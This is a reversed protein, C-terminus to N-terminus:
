KGKMMMGFMKNFNEMSGQGMTPLINASLQTVPTINRGVFDMTPYSSFVIIDELHMFPYAIRITSTPQPTTAHAVNMALSPPLISNACKKYDIEVSQGDITTVFARKYPFYNLRNHVQPSRPNALQIFEDSSRGGDDTAFFESVIYTNCVIYSRWIQTEEPTGGALEDLGSLYDGVEGTSNYQLTTRMGDIIYNDQDTPKKSQWGVITKWNSYTSPTSTISTGSFPVVDQELMSTDTWGSPDSTTVQELAIVPSGLKDKYTEWYDLELTFLVTFWDAGGESAPKPYNLIRKAKVFYWKKGDGTNSYNIGIYNYKMGDSGSNCTIEVETVPDGKPCNKLSYTETAGRGAKVGQAYITSYDPANGSEYLEVTFVNSDFPFDVHSVKPM